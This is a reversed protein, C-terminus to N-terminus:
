TYLASYKNCYVSYLGYHVTYQIPLFTTYLASHVLSVHYLVSMCCYDSCSRLRLRSLLHLVTCHLETCHLVMCHLVTCHLATYHLETCCRATCHLTICHLATYHLTTRYLVTCRLLLRLKLM